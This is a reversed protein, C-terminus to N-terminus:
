YTYGPVSFLLLQTGGWIYFILYMLVGTECNKKWYYKRSATRSHWHANSSTFIVYTELIELAFFFILLDINGIWFQKLVLLFSLINIYGPIFYQMWRLMGDVLFINWLLRSDSKKVLLFFIKQPFIWISLLAGYFFSLVRALMLNYWQDPSSIFCM